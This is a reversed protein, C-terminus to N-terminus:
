RDVKHLTNSNFQTFLPTTRYFIFNLVSQRNSLPMHPNGFVRLTKEDKKRKYVSELLFVTQLSIISSSWKLFENILENWCNIIREVNVIKNNLMWSFLLGPM